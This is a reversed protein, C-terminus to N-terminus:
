LNMLYIYINLSLAVFLWIIYPILLYGYYKNIKYSLRFLYLVFCIILILDVLALLINQFKFFIFTWILNLFLQIFFIGIWKCYPFCKNSSKVMLIFFIFLIFYLISWVVGFVYNPPNWPAKNLNDYWKKDM